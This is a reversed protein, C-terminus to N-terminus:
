TQVFDPKSGGRRLWQFFTLTQAAIQPWGYRAAVLARGRAGMAALEAPPQGLASVLTEALSDVDPACHWGAGAAPLEAWPTGTTTIAPLGHALAEAVAIGFNESLSPLIFAHAAAFAATKAHGEAPGELTLRPAPGLAAILPALTAGHSDEDPGIIRLHWDGLGPTALVRGWAGILAALNKVPHLRSLFLLTFPGSTARAPVAEPIDVGNPIIAIPPRRTVARIHGAEPPAAAILGSAGDLLHQQFLLRAMQKRRKSWALAWPALAGHPSIVLPINARAAATGAGLNTPLWLGHDHVIDHGPILRGIERARALTSGTLASLGVLAADPLIAPAPTQAALHVSAGARAQAEALAVIARSPGGHAAALSNVSHLIKM